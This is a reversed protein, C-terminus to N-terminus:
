EKISESLRNLEDEDYQIRVNEEFEEIESLKLLTSNLQDDRKIKENSFNKFLNKKNETSPTSKKSNNKGLDKFSIGAM